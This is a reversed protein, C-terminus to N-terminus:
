HRTFNQTMGLEVLYQRSDNGKRGSLCAETFDCLYSCHRSSAQRPADVPAVEPHASRGELRIQQEYRAHIIRLLDNAISDLERDTRHTRPRRHREEVTQARKLMKRRAQNFLQGYIPVGEQRLAWTYRDIQPDFDLDLQSPFNGVSKHDVLWLRGREEVILDARYKFEFLGVANDFPSLFNGLHDAAPPNLPVQGAREVDIIRWEEDVGWAAVHGAYMWSMLMGLDESMGVFRDILPQIRERAEVLADEHNFDWWPKDNAEAQKQFAQVARYHVELIEHWAIGQGAASEPNFPGKTWRERYGLQHQFDCRSASEVESNSVVIPAEIPPLQPQLYHL